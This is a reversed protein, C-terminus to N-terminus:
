RRELTWDFAGYRLRIRGGAREVRELAADDLRALVFELVGREGGFDAAYWQMLKPATVTGGDPEV